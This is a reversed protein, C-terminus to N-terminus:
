SKKKRLQIPEHEWTYGCKCTNKTITKGDRKIKVTIVEKSHDCVKTLENCARIIGLTLMTVGLYVGLALSLYISLGLVM